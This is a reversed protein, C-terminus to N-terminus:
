VEFKKLQKDTIEINKKWIQRMQFLWYIGVSYLLFVTIYTHETWFFSQSGDSSQEKIILLKSTVPNLFREVPSFQDTLIPVDDTKIELESEQIFQGDLYGNVDNEVLLNSFQPQNYVLNENVAVIMTNRISPLINTTPYVYITPYVEAMTKYIARFLDSTDGVLSTLINSIIIGNPKLHQDLLLFYEKTLLHFPVFDQAYADLIIVDYQKETNSLFVRADENIIRLRPNPEVNFYNKAVEIVDPDIEVVDVNIEPYAKLFNKPGSFGGGGVFLVDQADPKALMGIHFYKTYRVVLDDPNDKEMKSHQMGNLILSRFNRTDSVELHSYPTEKEYVVDGSHSFAVLVLASAPLYILFFIIVTVIKPIKPLGLLSSVLLVLGLGFIIQRVEFQEILVFTTFFTGFIGGVAAFFYLNGSVNGLKHLTKTGIKVAYPSVTGLLINPFLLVPIAALIPSYPSGPWISSSIELTPPAIFPILVIFLGASFVLSCFKTFSPNSDALRGGIIYGLSLGSLIVGIL